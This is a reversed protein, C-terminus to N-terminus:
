QARDADRAGNVVTVVKSIRCCKRSSKGNAGRRACITCLHIPIYSLLLLLIVWVILSMHMCKNIFCVQSHKGCLFDAVHWQNLVVGQFSVFSHVFVYIFSWALLNAVFYILCVFLCVFFSFLLPQRAAHLCGCICLHRCIHMTIQWLFFPYGATSVFDCFDFYASLITKIRYRYKRGSRLTVYNKIGHETIQM